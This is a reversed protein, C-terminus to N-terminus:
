LDSVFNGLVDRRYGEGNELWSCAIGDRRYFGLNARFDRCNPYQRPRASDGTDAVLQRAEMYEDFADLSIHSRPVSPRDASESRRSRDQKPTGIECGGM